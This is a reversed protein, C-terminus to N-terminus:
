GFSYLKLKLMSYRFFPLWLLFHTGRTKSTAICQAICQLANLTILYLESTSAGILCLVRIM